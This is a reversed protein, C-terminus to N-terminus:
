KVDAALARHCEELAEDTHRVAETRHGGFDRDAKQLAQKAMELHRIAMRIEPHRERGEKREAQGAPTGPSASARALMNVPFITAGALAIVTITGLLSKEM